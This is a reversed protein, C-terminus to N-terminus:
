TGSGRFNDPDEYIGIGELLKRAEVPDPVDRILDEAVGNIFEKLNEGLEIKNMSQSVLTEVIMTKALSSLLETLDEPVDFSTEELYNNEKREQRYYTKTFFPYEDSIIDPAHKLYGIQVHCTMDSYPFESEGSPKQKYFKYTIGCGTHNDAYVEVWSYEPHSIEKDYSIFKGSSHVIAEELERISFLQEMEDTRRKMAELVTPEPETFNSGIPWLSETLKSGSLGERSGKELKSILGERVAEIAEETGGVLTGSNFSSIGDDPEFVRKMVEDIKAAM